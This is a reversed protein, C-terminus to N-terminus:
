LWCGKFHCSCSKGRCTATPGEAGVFTLQSLNGETRALTHFCFVHVTLPWCLGDSLRCLSPLDLSVCRLIFKGWHFPWLIFFCVCITEWCVSSSHRTACRPTNIYARTQNRSFLLPLLRYFINLTQSLHDMAAASYAPLFAATFGSSVNTQSSFLEDLQVDCLGLSM